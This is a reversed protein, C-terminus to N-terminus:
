TQVGRPARRAAPPGTFTMTDGLRQFAPLSATFDDSLATWLTAYMTGSHVFWLVRQRLANGEDDEDTVDFGTVRRGAVQGKVVGPLAISTSTKLFGTRVQRMLSPSLAGDPMGKAPFSAVVLSHGNYENSLMLDVNVDGADEDVPLRREVDFEDPSAIQYPAGLTGSNKPTFQVWETGAPPAPAPRAAPKKPPAPKTTTPPKAAPRKAPVKAPAKANPAAAVTDSEPDTERESTGLSSVASVPGGPLTSRSTNRGIAMGGVLVAIIGALAAVARWNGWWGPAVSPPPTITRIPGTGWPRSVPAIASPVRNQAGYTPQLHSQAPSLGFAAQDAVPYGAPPPPVFAAPQHPAAGGFTNIQRVRNGKTAAGAERPGFPSSM